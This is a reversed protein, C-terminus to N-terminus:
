RPSITRTGSAATAQREVSPPASPKQRAIELGAATEDSFNVNTQESMTTAM